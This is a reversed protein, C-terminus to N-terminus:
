GRFDFQCAFAGIRPRQDFEVSCLENVLTYAECRQLDLGPSFIRLTSPKWHESALGEALVPAAVIVPPSLAPGSTEQCQVVFICGTVCYYAHLSPPLRSGPTKFLNGMGLPLVLLLANQEDPLSAGSFKCWYVCDIALPPLCLLVVM